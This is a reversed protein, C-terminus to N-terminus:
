PLLCSLRTGRSLERANVGVVVVVVVLFFFVSGEMSMM